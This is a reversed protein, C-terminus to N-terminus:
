KGQANLVTTTDGICVKQLPFYELAVTDNFPYPSFKPPFFEGREGDSQMKDIVRAVLSEREKPEYSTNLIM